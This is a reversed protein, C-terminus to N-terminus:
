KLGDVVFLDSMIRSYGYVIRSGDRAVEVNEISVVGAPDAPSLEKWLTRKGTVTNVRYVLRSNEQHVYVTEGDDGWQIPWYGKELGPLTTPEGGAVPYVSLVGREPGTAIVRKGDSSIMIGIVGEPTLPRPPGGDASEIYSREPRGPPNGWVLVQKGDPFWRGWNQELGHPELRKKHGAGTPLLEIGPSSPRVAIVWKGDPSLSTPLGEGLRVPPSGDVKRICAAYDPGNTETEECFVFESGDASLAGPTLVSYELWSLDREKGDEMSLGTIAYRLNNETLLVRGDQSIDQIVMRTGTRQIARQRGALNVAYLDTASGSRTATFWVEDGGPSWALSNATEWVETLPTAKAQLDVVAVLGRDDSWRPHDIFAIRDGKPSIRVNTIYGLKSEYLVRGPPFELRAIRAPMRVVAIQTATRDWDASMVDELIDRAAGGGLSAQALMGRYYGTAAYIEPARAIAMQGTSSIALLTATGLGLPRSEPSDSRTSYLEPPGGDWAASYAVTKSDVGFRASPIFGRRFTLRHFLPSPARWSFQGALFAAAMAVILGAAMIVRRRRSAPAALSTESIQSLHDRVAALDRALDETSSYRGQPEKAHCRELIWRLPAPVSPRIAGISEPEDNIIAALTDVGTKRHFARQGTVMEYLMSGFSFQDSRFDVSAGTAQEPSMYGLTGIVMGPSTATEPVHPAKRRAPRGTAPKALGFDLIKVLGDTTVMVNEPKLDRHVIGAEHAKALGSAVQIAIPLLKRVPMAGGSLIKRLTEGEIREMAIWAAGESAGTDHITVINPHNLASASRAEKEFRKLRDPDSSFEAPLVKIAVERGLRPDRARYVEGMGGAGLPALVEYPGLHMGKRVSRTPSLAPLADIAPSELFGSPAAGLSSLLSEVETRLELDDRCAEELYAARAQADLATAAAFLEQVRRWRDPTM